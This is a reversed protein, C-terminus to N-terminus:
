RVAVTPSKELWGDRLAIVGAQFRNRAGVEAMYEAIYRRCTRTSVQMQRAIADDKEGECLLYLVTAMEAAEARKM